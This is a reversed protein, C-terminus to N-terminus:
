INSILAKTIKSATAGKEFDFSSSKDYGLFIDEKNACIFKIKNRDEIEFELVCYKSDLCAQMVDIFTLKDKATQV